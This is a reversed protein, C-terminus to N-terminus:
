RDDKALNRFEVCAARLSTVGDDRPRLTANPWVDQGYMRMCVTMANGNRRTQGYSRDEYLGYM